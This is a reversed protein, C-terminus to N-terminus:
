YKQKKKVILVIYNGNPYHNRHVIIETEACHDNHIRSRRRPILKHPFVCLHSGTDNLFRRKSSQDAIFPSAQKWTPSSPRGTATTCSQYCRQTRNHHLPQLTPLAVQQHQRIVDPDGIHPSLQRQAIGAGVNITRRTWAIRRWGSM